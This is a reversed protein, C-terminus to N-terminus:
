RENDIVPRPIPMLALKEGQTRITPASHMRMFYSITASVISKILLIGFGIWTEKVFPDAGSLVAISAIIAAFVDFLLGQILTRKSRSKADAKVLDKATDVPQPAPAPPPSIVPAPPEPQAPEGYRDWPLSM